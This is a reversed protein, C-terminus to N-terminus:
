EVVSAQFSGSLVAELNTSSLINGEVFSGRLEGGDLQELRVTIPRQGSSWIPGNEQAQVFLQGSIESQQLAALNTAQTVAHFYYAPTRQQDKDAYSRIQLVSGHKPSVAVLQCYTGVIDVNENNISLTTNGSEVFSAVGPAAQLLDGKAKSAASAAKDATDQLSNGASEVADGAKQAVQEAIKQAQEKSCGCSACVALGLALRIFLIRM